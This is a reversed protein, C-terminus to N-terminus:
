FFAIFQEEWVHCIAFGCLQWVDGSNGEECIAISVTFLGQFFCVNHTQEDCGKIPYKIILMIIVKLM